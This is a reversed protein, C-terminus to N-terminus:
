IQESGPTAETDSQKHLRGLKETTAAWLMGGATAMALGGLRGVIEPQLVLFVASTELALGVFASVPWNHPDDDVQGQNSEVSQNQSM